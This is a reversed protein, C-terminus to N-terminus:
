TSAALAAERIFVAVPKGAKEAAIAIRSKEDVSLNIQFGNRVRVARELELKKIKKRSM